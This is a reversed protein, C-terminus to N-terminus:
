ESDIHILNLIWQSECPVTIGVNAYFESVSDCDPGECSMSWSQDLEISTSSNVQGLILSETNLTADMQLGSMDESSTLEDCIFSSGDLVCNVEEDFVFGEETLELTVKFVAEADETDEASNDGNSCESKVLEVTGDSEWEGAMPVPSSCAIAFTSVLIFVLKTNM